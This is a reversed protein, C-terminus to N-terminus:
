TLFYLVYSYVIFPEYNCSIEIHNTFFRVLFVTRHIGDINGICEESRAYKPWEGGSKYGTFIGEVRTIKLRTHHANFVASFDFANEGAARVAIFCKM